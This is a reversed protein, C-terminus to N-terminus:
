IRKFCKQNVIMNLSSFLNLLQGKYICDERVTVGLCCENSLLWGQKALVRRLDIETQVVLLVFLFVVFLSEHEFQRILSHTEATIEISLVISLYM